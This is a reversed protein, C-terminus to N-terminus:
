SKRDGLIVERPSFLLQTVGSMKVKKINIRYVPQLIEPTMVESPNGSAVVAGNDLLVVEDCYQAALNLDHLVIVTTKGSSRIISLIEHQYRIDLHNTPEDLVIYETDQALARAILVRQKEGGSLEGFVRQSLSLANVQELSKVVIEEDQSSYTSFLSKYPTRGLMVTEAVSMHSVAEHEQVVVAIKQALEGKGMEGLSQGDVTVEGSVPHLGGYLARLFTSKGSGNPGILGVVAGDVTQLNVAKLIQQNGYSFDINKAVIM